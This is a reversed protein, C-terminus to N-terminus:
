FEKLYKNIIEDVNIMMTKESEEITKKEVVIDRYLSYPYFIYSVAVKMKNIFSEMANMKKQEEIIENVKIYFKDLGIM